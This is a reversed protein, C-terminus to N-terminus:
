ASYWLYWLMYYPFLLVFHKCMCSEMESKTKVAPRPGCECVLSVTFWFRLGWDYGLLIHTMTTPLKPLYKSGTTVVRPLVYVCMSGVDFMIVRYWHNNEASPFNYSYTPYRVPWTDSETTCLGILDCSVLPSYANSRISRHEELSSLVACSVYLAIFKVDTSLCHHKGKWLPSHGAMNRGTCQIRLRPQELCSCLKASDWHGESLV